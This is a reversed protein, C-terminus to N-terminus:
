RKGPEAFGTVFRQTLGHALGADQNLQPLIVCHLSQGSKGCKSKNDGAGATATPEPTFIAVETIATAIVELCGLGRGHLHR